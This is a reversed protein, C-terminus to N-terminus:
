GMIAIVFHDRRHAYSAPGCLAAIQEPRRDSLISEPQQGVTADQARELRGPRIACAMEDDLRERQELLQRREGRPRPDIEHEVVAHERRM